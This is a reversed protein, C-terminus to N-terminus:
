KHNCDLIMPQWRFCKSGGILNGDRGSEGWNGAGKRGENWDGEADALLDVQAVGILRRSFPISYRKDWAAIGKDRCWGIRHNICHTFPLKKNQAPQPVILAREPYTPGANQKSILLPNPNPPPKKKQQRCPPTMIRGFPGTRQRSLILSHPAFIYVCCSSRM